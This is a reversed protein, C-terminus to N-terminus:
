LCQDFKVLYFMNFAMCIHNQPGNLNNHLFNIENGHITILNCNNVILTPQKHINIHCCFPFPEGNQQVQLLLHISGSQVVQNGHNHSVKHFISAQTTEKPILPICNKFPHFTTNSGLKQLFIIWKHIPHMAHGM